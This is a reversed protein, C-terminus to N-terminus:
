IGLSEPQTRADYFMLNHGNEYGPNLSSKLPRPHVKTM